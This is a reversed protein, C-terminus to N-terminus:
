AQSPPFVLQYILYLATIHSSPLIVYMLPSNPSEDDFDLMWDTGGIHFGLSCLFTMILYAPLGNVFTFYNMGASQILFLLTGPTVDLETLGDPVGYVLAAFVWLYPPLMLLKMMRLLNNIIPQLFTIRMPHIFYKGARKEDLFFDHLSLHYTTVDPYSIRILSRLRLLKFKLKTKKSGSVFKIRPNRLAILLTFLDRLLRINQQQSLIQIYLQDLEAFPSVSNVPRTKLM